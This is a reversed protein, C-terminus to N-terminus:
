YTSELWAVVQVPCPLGTMWASGGVILSDLDITRTLQVIRPSIQASSASTPMRSPGVPGQSPGIVSFGRLSVPVSFYFYWRMGFM